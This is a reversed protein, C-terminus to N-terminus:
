VTVFFSNIVYDLVDVDADSVLQMQVIATFAQDPPQAAITIIATGTGGCADFIQFSGTYAPDEYPQM